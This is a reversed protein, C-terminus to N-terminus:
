ATRTVSRPLYQVVRSKKTVLCYLMLFVHQAPGISTPVSQWDSFIKRHLNKVDLTFLVTVFITTDCSLVLRDRAITRGCNECKVPGPNLCVDGVIFLRILHFGSVSRSHYLQNEFLLLRGWTCYPYNPSQPKVFM